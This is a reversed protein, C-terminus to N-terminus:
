QLKGGGWWWGGGGPEGPRSTTPRWCTFYCACTRHDPGSSKVSRQCALDFPKSYVCESVLDTVEPQGGGGGGGGGREREGYGVVRYSLTYDRM